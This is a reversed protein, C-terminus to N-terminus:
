SHTWTQHTISSFMSHTYGFVCVFVCLFVDVNQRLRDISQMKHSNCDLEFFSSRTVNFCVCIRFAKNRKFCVCIRFVKNRESTHAHSEAHSFVRESACSNWLTLKYKCAHLVLHVFCFIIFVWTGKVSTRIIRQHRICAVDPFATSMHWLTCLVCRDTGMMDWWILYIYMYVCLCMYFIHRYVRVCVKVRAWSVYRNCRGGLMWIWVSIRWLYCIQTVSCTSLFGETMWCRCGRFVTKGWSLWLIWSRLEATCVCYQDTTHIGKTLTWTHMLPARCHMFFIPISQQHVNTRGPWLWLTVRCHICM